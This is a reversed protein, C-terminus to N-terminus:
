SRFSHHDREFSPDDSQLTSGCAIAQLYPRGCHVVNTVDPSEGLSLIVGHAACKRTIDGVQHQPPGAAEAISGTPDQAVAAESRHRM